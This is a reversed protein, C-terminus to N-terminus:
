TDIKINKCYGQIFNGAKDKGVKGVLRVSAGLKALVGAENLADGGTHMAIHEAPVSGKSFVESTVPQVLVDLIAAGIIIFDAHKIM